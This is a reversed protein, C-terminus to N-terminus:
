GARAPALKDVKASLEQVAGMTVGMADIVSIEKGNGLGTAKQFDEAYPGVHKKGGGDGMGKKYEWEEVPMGKMADLSSMPKRKKTKADKSSMMAYGAVQGGANMLDGFAANSAEYARVQNQYQMNLGNMMGNQGSMAVRAGNMTSNAAGNIGAVNAGLGTSASANGMGMSTGPNVALGAGMNIATAKLNRGTAETSRRAANGAGAAALAETTQARNASANSRGSGPRVGQAAQQRGMQQRGLAFQQRVDTVAENAAMAKREPSAYANAQAIWDDQLPVFTDTYRSRDEAAWGDTVAAREMMHDQYQQGMALKKEAFQESAIQARMGLEAQMVAAEGIRPDAKPPKSGM